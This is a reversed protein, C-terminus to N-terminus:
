AHTRAGSVDEDDTLRWPEVLVPLALREDAGGALQEVRQQCSNSEAARIHVDGVHELAARRHVAVRHGVLSLRARWIELPLELQASSPSSMSKATSAPNRNGCSSKSPLSRPSGSMAKRTHWSRSSSPMTKVCSCSSWM